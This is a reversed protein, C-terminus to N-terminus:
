VRNQPDKHCMNSSDRGEKWRKREGTGGWKMAEDNLNQGSGFLLSCFDSSLLLFDYHVEICM